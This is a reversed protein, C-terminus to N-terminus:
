TTSETAGSIVYDVSTANTTAGRIKDAADLMLAENFYLQEHQSLPVRVLRRATGGSPQLLIEVTEVTSVGSAFVMSKIFVRTDAPCTYLDGEAAPLQGDALQKGLISM